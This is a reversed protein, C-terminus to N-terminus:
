RLTDATPGYLSPLPVDRLRLYVTLQGRHHIMHSLIFGRWAAARPLSFITSGRSKLTWKENLAGDALSSLADRAERVHRDFRELLEPLTTFPIRAISANAPSGLDLESQQLVLRAWLPLTALHSALEGLTYSRPHPKWGGDAGPVVELVRRTNGMEFDFESGLTRVLSM